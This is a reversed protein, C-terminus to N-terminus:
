RVPLPTPGVLGFNKAVLALDFITVVGDNNYDMQNLAPPANLNNAMWVLDIINIFGDDNVDGALLTVDDFEATATDVNFANADLYGVREVVIDQVGINPVNVCRNGVPVNLTVGAPLATVTANPALWPLKGGELNVCIEAGPPDGGILLHGAPAPPLPFPPGPNDPPNLVCFSFGPGIPGICPEIQNGFEDTVKVLPFTLPTNAGFGAGPAPEWQIRFLSGNGRVPLLPNYYNIVAINVYSRQFGAPLPPEWAPALPAAQGLNTRIIYDVNETLGDFLSGPQIGVVQVVTPNYDFAVNVGYLDEVDTIMLETTKQGPIPQPNVISSPPNLRFGNHFSVQIEVKGDEEPEQAVAPTAMVAALLLLLLIVYIYKSLHKLKM